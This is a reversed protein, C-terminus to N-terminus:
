DKKCLLVGVACGATLWGAMKMWQSFDAYGFLLNLSFQNWQYLPLYKGAVQMFEPLYDVPILLGSGLVVLVEVALLVLTGTMSQDALMYIVHYWVAFALCLFFLGPIMRIEWFLFSNGLVHTVVAASIVGLLAPLLLVNAMILVKALSVRYVNMGYIRLKEEVGRGHKIYLHGFSSGMVLLVFLLGSSFYYQQQGYNGYPSCIMDQYLIGRDFAAEMYHIAVTNGVESHVVRTKEGDAQSLISLVGAETTRIMSIGDELLEQFTQTSVSAQESLYLRVSTSSLEDVERYFHEPFVLVASLEGGALKEMAETQEMTCLRCISKASQMASVLQILFELDEKKEEPVVVAVEAKELKASEGFISSCLYAAACFGLVAVVFYRLSKAFVALARRLEMKWYHFFMDM